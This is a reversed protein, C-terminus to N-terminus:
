RGPHRDLLDNGLLLAPYAPDAAGPIPMLWLLHRHTSESRRRYVGPHFSPPTTLPLQGRPLDALPACCELLADHQIAGTAAVLLREGQLVRNLYDRLKDPTAERWAAPTSLIPRALPHDQWALSIAWEEMEEEPDAVTEQFEQHIVKLERDIDSENFGPQLLMTIFLNSLALADEAPVTGYLASLERGTHANVQGGMAAFRQALESEDLTATGKFLLHELLHAYGSEHFEEHRSGNVLWVGLAVSHAHPIPLSLIRVGNALRTQKLM